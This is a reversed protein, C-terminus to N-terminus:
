HLVVRDLMSRVHGILERRELVGWKHERFLNHVYIILSGAAPTVLLLLLHRIQASSKM